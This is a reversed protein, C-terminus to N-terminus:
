AIKLKIGLQEFVDVLNDVNEATFLIRGLKATEQQDLEVVARVTYYGAAELCNVVKAEIGPLDKLKSDGFVAVGQEKM